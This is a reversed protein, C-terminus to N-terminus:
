HPTAGESIRQPRSLLLETDQMDQPFHMVPVEEYVRLLKAYGTFITDTRFIRQFIYCNKIDQSSRLMEAYGTVFM